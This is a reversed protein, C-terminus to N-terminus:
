IKLARSLSFKGLYKKTIALITDGVVFDELKVTTKKSLTFNQDEGNVTLVFSKKKPDITKFTAIKSVTEVITAPDVEPLVNIIRTELVNDKNKLGIVLLNDALAISTTKIESGAKTIVTEPLIAIQLLDSEVELTINKTGVSKVKGTYGVFSKANTEKQILNETTELNEKVLSKIKNQLDVSPTASPTSTLALTPTALTFFVLTFLILKKM